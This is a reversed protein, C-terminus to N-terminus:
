EMDAESNFSTRAHNFSCRELPNIRAEWDDAVAHPSHCFCRDCHCSAPVSLLMPLCDLYVLYLMYFRCVSVVLGSGFLLWKGLVGSGSAVGPVAFAAGMAACDFTLSHSVVTLSLLSMAPSTAYRFLRLQPSASPQSLVSDALCLGHSSLHLYRVDAPLSRDVARLMYTNNDFLHEVDTFFFGRTPLTHQTGRLVRAGASRVCTCTLVRTARPLAAHPAHAPPACRVGRLSRPFACWVCWAFWAPFGRFGRVGSPFAPLVRM